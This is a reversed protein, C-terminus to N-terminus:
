NLDKVIFAEAEKLAFQTAEQSQKWNTRDPDKPWILGAWKYGIFAGAALMVLWAFQGPEGASQGPRKMAYALGLCAAPCSAMGAVFLLMALFVSRNTKVENAHFLQAAKAQAEQAQELRQLVLRGKEAHRAVSRLQEKFRAEVVALQEQASALSQEGDLASRVQQAVELVAAERAENTKREEWLRNQEKCKRSFAASFLDMQAEDDKLGKRRYQLLDLLGGGFGGDRLRTLRSFAGAKSTAPEDELAEVHQRLLQRAKDRLQARSESDLQQFFARVEAIFRKHEPDEAARVVYGPDLEIARRLKVLAEQPSDMAMRIQSSQFWAEGIKPDLQIASETHELATALKEPSQPTQTFAAFGAAMMARAADSPADSRAYRAALLFPQEAKSSDSPHRFSGLYVLGRLNHFRWETKFGSSVHDGAIAKDLEELCEAILGKRYNERAIEFHEYAATQAPTQAIALLAEMTASMGGLASLVESFGWNFTAAVEAFGGSVDERLGRIEGSLIQAIAENSGILSETQQDIGKRVEQGAERASSTIESLAQRRALYTPYSEVRRDWTYM